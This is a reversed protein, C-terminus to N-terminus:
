FSPSTLNCQESSSHKGPLIDQSPSARSEPETRAHFLRPNPTCPICSVLGGAAAGWFGPGSTAWAM